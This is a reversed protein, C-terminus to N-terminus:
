STWSSRRPYAMSKLLVYVTLGTFSLFVPDQEYCLVIYTGFQLVALRYHVWWVNRSEWDSGLRVRRGHMQPATKKNTQWYLKLHLFVYNPLGWWNLACAIEDQRLIKKMTNGLESAANEASTTVLALTFLYVTIRGEDQSTITTLLLSSPLKAM